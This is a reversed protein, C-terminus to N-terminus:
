DSAAPESLWDAVADLTADRRAARPRLLYLRTPAPMVAEFPAILRRKDILPQVLSRRGILMGVGDLAAELALSYLSFSPGKRADIGAAGAFDLWLAWHDRWTGDHLLVFRSLSALPLRTKGKGVLAPSCVPFLTDAALPRLEVHSPREIQANREIQAQREEGLYFVALDYPERVFSPPQELATVSIQLKPFQRRLDRLRPQLWLQAVSPLAAIRLEEPMAARRLGQVAAGLDDFAQMFAPLAQRAAATLRLGQSMREFLPQRMWAELSKVQQAIAAPTVGLEQAAAAFSEHRAAAEFARLANM